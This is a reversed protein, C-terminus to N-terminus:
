VNDEINEFMAQQITELHDLMLCHLTFVTVKLCVTLESLEFRCM